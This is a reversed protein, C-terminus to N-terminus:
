SQYQVVCGLDFGEERLYQELDNVFDDTYNCIKGEYNKKYFDSIAEKLSYDMEEAKPHIERSM